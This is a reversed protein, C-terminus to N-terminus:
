HVMWAASLAYRHASAVWYAVGLLVGTWRFLPSFRLFSIFGSVPYGGAEGYVLLFFLFIRGYTRESVICM